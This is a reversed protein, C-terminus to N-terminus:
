NKQFFLYKKQRKFPTFKRGNGDFFKGFFEIFQLRGSHVFAGLLSLAFNLAHGFFVIVVAVIIGLTWHPMMDYMVGATLNMAFGIVGTALGLAMIRSYSLIDSIYTTIGYLGLIGSIPKMLWNKQHRGQTIVLILAGALCLNKALEKDFGIIDSLGYLVIMSLLFFWALPDCFADVYAQNKIKKAFDLLLGFLLQAMGLGLAIILFTIPGSGTMPDILQGRFPLIGEAGATFEPNIILAALWGPLVDPTMGFYGGLIVGGAVASIGCLLLLLLGSKAIKSMKGFVLFVAAVLALIGGYGVDSLCLGFFVFFFPALFPTPDLDEETPIGFMETIFEFPAIGKKNDMMTPIIEDKNAEIKDISVEQVFSNGIWKEIADFEKLPMWAEFAFIKETKLIQYQLDHKKKRWENYDSLIKLDELHVALSKRQKQLTQLKKDYEKKNKELNRLIERPTQGFYESFDSEFDINKIDFEKLIEDIKEQAMKHYSIRVLIQNNQTGFFEIDALRSEQALKQVFNEKHNIQLFGIITKTKKSEFNQEVKLQLSKLPLLAKQKEEIKQIEHQTRGTEYELEECETIIDNSKPIFKKLKEKAEEENTIIKGGSFVKELFPKPTEFPTLYQIAFDIRALDFVEFYQDVKGVSNQIFEQNEIIELIGRRHLEQMLIKYHKKLGTIRIKQLVAKGM